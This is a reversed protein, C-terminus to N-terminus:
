LSLVGHPQKPGPLLSCNAEPPVFAASIYWFAHVSWLCPRVATDHIWSSVSQFSVGPLPHTYFFSVCFVPGPSIPVASPIEKGVLWIKVMAAGKETTTAADRSDVPSVSASRQGSLVVWLKQGEVGERIRRSLEAVDM